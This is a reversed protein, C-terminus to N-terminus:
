NSAIQDPTLAIGRTALQSSVQELLIDPLLLDESIIGQGQQQVETGTATFAVVPSNDVLVGEAYFEPPPPPQFAVVGSAGLIALFSALGAWKYRNLALLYRKIFPSAM